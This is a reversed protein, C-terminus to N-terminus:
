TMSRLSRRRRVRLFQVLAALLSYGIAGTWAIPGSSMSMEDAPPLFRFNGSYSAPVDTSELMSAISFGIAIPPCPQGIYMSMEFEHFAASGILMVFFPVVWLLFLAVGAVRVSAWEVLEQIFM